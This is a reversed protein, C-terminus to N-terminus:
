MHESSSHKLAKALQSVLVDDHCGLLQRADDAVKPHYLLSKNNMTHPLPTPLPLETLVTFLIVIIIFLLCLGIKLAKSFFFLFILM